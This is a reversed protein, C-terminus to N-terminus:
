RHRRSDLWVRCFSSAPTGAGDAGGDSYVDLVGLNNSEAAGALKQKWKADSCMSDHGEGLLQLEDGPVFCEEAGQQSWSEGKWCVTGEQEEPVGPKWSSCSWEQHGEQSHERGEERMQMFVQESLEAPLADLLWRQGEELVV